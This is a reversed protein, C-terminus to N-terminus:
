AVEVEQEDELECMGATCFFDDVVFDIGDFFHYVTEDPIDDPSFADAVEAPSNEGYEEMFEDEHLNCDDFWLKGKLESIQDRNLQYVTMINNGRKLYTKPNIMRSYRLVTLSQAIPQNDIM